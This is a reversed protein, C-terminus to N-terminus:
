WGLSERDKEMEKSLWERDKDAQDSAWQRNREMEREFSESGDCDAALSALVAISMMLLAISTRM